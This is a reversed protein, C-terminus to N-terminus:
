FAATVQVALRNGINDLVEQAADNGPAEAERFMYNLDLRTAGRFRYSCGLTLTKFDREGKTDNTLRNL